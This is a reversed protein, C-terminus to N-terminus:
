RKDCGVGAYPNTHVYIGVYFYYEKDNKNINM